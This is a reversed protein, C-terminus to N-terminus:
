FIMNQQEQPKKVNMLKFDKSFILLYDEKSKLKKLFKKPLKTLKLSKSLNDSPFKNNKSEQQCIKLKCKWKINKNMINWDKFFMKKFLVLM